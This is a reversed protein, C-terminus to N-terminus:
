RKSKRGKARVISWEYGAMQEPDVAVVIRSTTLPEIFVEVNYERTVNQSASKGKFTIAITLQTVNMQEIGNYINGSFVTPSDFGMRGSLRSILEPAIDADEHKDPFRSRCSQIIARAAVDSTVGRMSSTVCDDYSRPGFFAAIVTFPIAAVAFIIPLFYRSTM